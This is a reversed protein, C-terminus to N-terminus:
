TKELVQGWAEHDQLLRKVVREAEYRAMELQTCYTATRKNVKADCEQTTYTGLVGIARDFERRMDEVFEECDRGSWDDMILLRSVPSALNASYRVLAQCKDACARREEQKFSKLFEEAEYLM